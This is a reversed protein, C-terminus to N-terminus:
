LIIHIIFRESQRHRLLSHTCYKRNLLFSVVPCSKPRSHEGEKPFNCNSVFGGRRRNAVYELLIVTGAIRFGFNNAWVRKPFDIRVIYLIIRLVFNAVDDYQRFAKVRGGFRGFGYESLSALIASSHRYGNCHLNDAVRVRLTLLTGNARHRRVLFYVKGDVRPLHSVRRM